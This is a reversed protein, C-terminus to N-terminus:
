SSAAASGAIPGTGAASTCAHSLSPRRLHASSVCPSARPVGLQDAGRGLLRRLRRYPPEARRHSDGSQGRKRDPRSRLQVHHHRQDVLTNGRPRVGRAPSL